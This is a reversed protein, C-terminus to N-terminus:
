RVGLAACSLLMSVQRVEAGEDGGFSPSHTTHRVEPMERPRSDENCCGKGEAERGARLTDVVAGLESEMLLEGWPLDDM